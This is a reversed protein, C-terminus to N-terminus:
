DVPFFSLRKRTPGSDTLHISLITLRYIPFDNSPMRLL